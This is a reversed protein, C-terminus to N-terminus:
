KKGRSRSADVTETGNSKDTECLASQRGCLIEQHGETLLCDGSGLELELMSGKLGMRGREKRVLLM